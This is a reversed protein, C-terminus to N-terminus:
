FFDKALDTRTISGHHGMQSGDLFELCWRHTYPNSEVYAELLNIPPTPREMDCCFNSILRIQSDISRPTDESEWARAWAEFQSTLDHFAADQSM